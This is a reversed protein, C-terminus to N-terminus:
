SFHLYVVKRVVDSCLLMINTLLHLTSLTACCLPSLLFSETFPFHSFFGLIKTGVNSEIGNCCMLFLIMHPLAPLWFSGGILVSCKKKAVYPDLEVLTEQIFTSRKWACGACSM